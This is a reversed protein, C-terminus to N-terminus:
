QAHTSFMQTSITQLATWLLSKQLEASNMLRIHGVVYSPIGNDAKIIVTITAWKYLPEDTESLDIRFNVTFRDDPVSGNKLNILDRCFATVMLGDAPHIKENECLQVLPNAANSFLVGVKGIPSIEFTDDTYNYVFVCMDANTEIFDKMAQGISKGM